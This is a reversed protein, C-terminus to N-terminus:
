KCDQFTARAQFVVCWLLLKVDSLTGGGDFGHRQAQDLHQRSITRTTRTHLQASTHRGAATHVAPHALGAGIKQAAEVLARGRLLVGVRGDVGAARLVTKSM